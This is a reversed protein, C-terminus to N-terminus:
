YTQGDVHVPPLHMASESVSVSTVYDPSGDPQSSFYLLTEFHLKSTRSLPKKRGLWTTAGIM